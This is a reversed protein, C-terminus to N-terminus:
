KLEIEPKLRSLVLAGFAGIVMVVIMSLVGTEITLSVAMSALAGILMQIAGLLASANGATHGLSALALASTNPFTLGLCFLFAFIGGTTTYMNMSDSLYLVVLALAVLSQAILAGKVVSESSQRKLILNNVQGAGVLGIAIIAFIIAYTRESVEYVQLYTHPSGSLYAYLGMYSMSGMVVYLIFPRFTFISKYNKAIAVVNLNYSADPQKSEPLAFAMGGLIISALVALTFFIFRWDGVANLYSGLTPAIVPSVAVVMMLMSFVRAAERTQFTDRVIARSAVMGGCAGLAQTFRFFILAEISGSLACGVSSLIYVALGVYTPRKRGWRELLPGYILQGVALGAFFSSLSLSVTDVNTGLSGAISEFAPLYM